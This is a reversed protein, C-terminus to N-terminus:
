EGMRERKGKEQAMWLKMGELDARGTSTVWDNEVMEVIAKTAFTEAVAFRSDGWDSLNDFWVKGVHM